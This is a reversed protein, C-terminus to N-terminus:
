HQIEAKPLHYVCRVNNVIENNTSDEEMTLLTELTQHLMVVQENKSGTITDLLLIILSQTKSKRLYLFSKCKRLTELREDKTGLFTAPPSPFNLQKQRKRATPASSNTDIM